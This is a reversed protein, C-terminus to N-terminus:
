KFIADARNYCLKGCASLARPADRRFSLAHFSLVHRDLDFSEIMEHDVDRVDCHGGLPVALNEAHFDLHELGAAAFRRPSRQLETVLLDVDPRAIGVLHLPEGRVVLGGAALIQAEEGGGAGVLHHRMQLCMADRDFLARNGLLAGAAGQARDIAPIRIAAQDLNRRILVTAPLALGGAGRMTMALLGQSSAIWVAGAPPNQIAESRECHRRLSCSSAIILVCGGALHLSCPLVYASNALRRRFRPGTRRARRARAASSAPQPACSVDTGSRPATRRARAASSSHRTERAPRRARTPVPWARRSAPRM